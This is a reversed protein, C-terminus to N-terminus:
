RRKTRRDLFGCQCVCDGGVESLASRFDMSADVGCSRGKRRGAASSRVRLLGRLLKELTAFSAQHEYGRKFIPLCEPSKVILDRPLRFNPDGGVRIVDNVEVTFPKKTGIWVHGRRVSPKQKTSGLRSRTTARWTLLAAPISEVSKIPRFKNM